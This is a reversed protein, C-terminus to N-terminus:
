AAIILRWTNPTRLTDCHSVFVARARGPLSAGLHGMEDPSSVCAYYPDEPARM